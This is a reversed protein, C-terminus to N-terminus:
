LAESPSAASIQGLMSWFRSMELLLLVPAGVQLVISWPGPRLTVAMVAATMGAAYVLLGPSLRYPNWPRFFLIAANTFFGIICAVATGEIGWRPILAVCAVVLVGGSIIAAVTTEGIREAVWSYNNLFLIPVRLVGLCAILPILPIAARFPEGLVLAGVPGAFGAVLIGLATFLRLSRDWLRQLDPSRADGLRFVLIQWEKNLIIAVFLVVAGVQYGAAYLGVATAGALLNLLIRELGSMSWTALTQLTVAGAIRGIRRAEGAIPPHRFARLIPGLAFPLALLAGALEGILIAVAGLGLVLVGLLTTAVSLASRGIELFALQDARHGTRLQASLPSALTSLVVTAVVLALHPLVPVGALIVPAVIPASVGLLLLAGAMVLLHLRVATGAVSPDLDDPDRYVYRLYVGEVGPAVALSIVGAAAIATVVLGYDAPSFLRTYLPLLLLNASRSLIRPLSYWVM